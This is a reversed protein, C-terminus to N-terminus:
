GRREFEAMFNRIRTANAGVDSRGVRSKSRIDLRSGSALPTVRIVVDDKFGFWRTTDTAEIRGDQPAAAVIQWGMEHASQLARDFAEEATLSLVLPRIDPYNERQQRATEEGAYDVPNPADARLPVVDVFQPPNATDTSIDHIFPLSQVTQYGNWPVWATVMGIILATALLGTRGRRIKPLLLFLLALVAGGLGLFLAWRMMLFGTGYEWLDLRTGPGAFLLLAAAVVVVAVAIHAIRM